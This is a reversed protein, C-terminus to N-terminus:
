NFLAALVVLFLKSSLQGSLENRLFKLARTMHDKVTSLSIGFEEAAEEYSRGDIKIRTFVKQRQEPLRAIVENLLANTEKFNIYDELENYLETSTSMLKDHLEKDLAAKRYFNYALSKAKQFVIAQLPINEPLREREEWIKMFVDQHLEEVVEPIQVLRRLRSLTIQAYSDYLVNFATYDSDRLKLLLDKEHIHPNVAM